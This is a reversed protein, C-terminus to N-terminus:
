IFSKGFALGAGIFKMGESGSPQSEQAFAENSFYSETILAVTAILAMTSISKLEM